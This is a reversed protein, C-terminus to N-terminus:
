KEIEQPFLLIKIFEKTLWFISYCIRLAAVGMMGFFLSLMLWELWKIIM